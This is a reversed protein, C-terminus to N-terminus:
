IRRETARTTGSEVNWHTNGPWESQRLRTSSQGVDNTVRFRGPFAPPELLQSLPAMIFSFAFCYEGSTCSRATRITNSCAPSCRDRHAATLETADLIPQLAAVSCPHTFLVSTFRPTRAPTGVSTASFILAMSRSFRSSRCALSIRRLADAYKA